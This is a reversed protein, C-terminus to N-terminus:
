ASQSLLGLDRLIERVDRLADSDIGHGHSWRTLKLWEGVNGTELDYREAILRATDPRSVLEQAIACVDDVLSRLEEGRSAAVSRRTCMVFAPWPAAFDGVRRFVGTDVVPQTMFREWLFVDAAGSRLADIAGELTGVEVFELEDLPWGQGRVFAFSMLHSGSGKRSIAYRAGRLDAETRAPSGAAVHIGWILPSDTFQSIIEVDRGAGAAAVAGETLLVAIDLDGADLAEVMAGTGGPFDRWSIGNESGSEARAELLLHWPLNFHEPVGGITINKLPNHM